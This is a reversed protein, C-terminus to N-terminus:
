LSVLDKSSRTLPRYGNMEVVVLDEVRVGGFGPIYIGPEVTVVMGPVLVTRDSSALRPSEHVELGVGHGVGHGFYEGYGAKGIVERAVADVEAATVGARIAELAAQQAERVLGFLDVMKGRAPGMVAMRTLDSAYGGYVAGIDMLLLNDRELAKKSPRAHPLAAREGFAVVFEFAPKEAGVRRMTYELELALEAETMGPRIGAVVQRLAEEAISAAAEILKVEQEDKVARLGEVLGKVPVLEVGEPMMGRWDEYQQYAVSGAEFGVRFIGSAAVARGVEGAYGDKVKFLVFEPAEAAAQEWYRFDTILFSQEGTILLIGQSGTFSSLYFRNAPQVVLLGEVGAGPLAQRLKELRGAMM